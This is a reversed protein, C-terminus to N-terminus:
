VFSKRHMERAYSDEKSTCLEKSFLERDGFFNSPM